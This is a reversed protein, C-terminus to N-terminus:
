NHDTTIQLLTVAWVLIFKSLLVLMHLLGAYIYIYIYVYVTKFSKISSVSVYPTKGICDVTLVLLCRQCRGDTHWTVPSGPDSWTQTLQQRPHLRSLQPNV